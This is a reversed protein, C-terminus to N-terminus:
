NLMCQELQRLVENSLPFRKVPNNTYWQKGVCGDKLETYTAFRETARIIDSRGLFICVLKYTAFDKMIYPDERLLNALDAVSDEKTFKEFTM